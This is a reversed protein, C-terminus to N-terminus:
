ARRKNAADLAADDEVRFLYPNLLQGACFLAWILGLGAFVYGPDLTGALGGGAATSIPLITWAILRRISFVRGQLERPTHSQWISQSHANLIPHMAAGLSAAAACVLVLPSLGYVIQLVGALLMPVLVGYVRNRKLGGWASVLLGGIVGGVGGAVSLLALATEFTYGRAAWDPELNFKVLLPVIVGTPAGALNAVVFTALLWLLPPRRWIYLAGERVDGWLSQEIRGSASVDSRSPSPVDVVLLVVACLFFTFADVAFLLPTGNGMSVLPALVGVDQPLLGPLAIILAALAPSIIGSISWTTQMMGNARPLLRDPVLMAYSADFAAYHFASAAAALVGICVLMWLQLSGSLMLVFTLLTILGKATNTVIMIQKRDHRDAWAGALPGGFVFPITFGLNLATFALALEAKQEPAPYLVQALYVNLAFGTMGSGIVSLSQAAWVVVFTRFGHRPPAYAM